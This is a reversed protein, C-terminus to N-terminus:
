KRLDELNVSLSNVQHGSQALLNGIHREIDRMRAPDIIRIEVEFMVDLRMYNQWAGSDFLGNIDRDLQSLGQQVTGPREPKHIHDLTHCAMRQKYLDRMM